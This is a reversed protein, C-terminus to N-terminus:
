VAKFCKGILSDFMLVMACYVGKTANKEQLYFDVDRSDDRDIFLIKKEDLNGKSDIRQYLIKSCDGGSRSYKYLVIAGGSLLNHVAVRSEKKGIHDQIWLRTNSRVKFDTDMLKCELVYKKKNKDHYCITRYGHDFSRFEVNHPFDYEKEVDYSANMIILREVTCGDKLCTSQSKNVSYFSVGVGELKHINDIIPRSLLELLLEGRDNFRFVRMNKCEVHHECYYFVDFTDFGAVIYNVNLGLTVNVSTCSTVNVITVKRGYDYLVVVKGNGLSTTTRLIDYNSYTTVRCKICNKYRPDVSNIYLSHHDRTTYNCDPSSRELKTNVIRLFTNNWPILRSNESGSSFDTKWEYLPEILKMDSGSVIQVIVFLIPLIKPLSLTVM